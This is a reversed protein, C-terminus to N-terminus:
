ATQVDILGNEYLDEQSETDGIEVFNFVISALRGSLNNNISLSVNEVILIFMEM